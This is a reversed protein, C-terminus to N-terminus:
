GTKVQKLDLHRELVPTEGDIWEKALRYHLLHDSAYLSHHQLRQLLQAALERTAGGIPISDENFLDTMNRELATLGATARWEDAIYILIESMVEDISLEYENSVLVTDNFKRIPEELDLVVTRPLHFFDPPASYTTAHPVFPDNM